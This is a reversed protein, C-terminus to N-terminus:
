DTLGPVDTPLSPFHRTHEAAWGLRVSQGVPWTQRGPHRVKLTQGHLRVTLLSDAGHYEAAEVVAQWPGQGLQVHEPRIGCCGPEGPLEILNMPPQGIFRAVVPSAPQEYLEAPTGVQAIRGQHLLVIRDAMSMAEVQDHTVYVLTLGLTQQLRRLEVRMEARLQADLNSLPEDMLCLPHQSVVARALAVRQRQGGSLQGPKRSLLASLGLMQVAQDLRRAQEARPVRRAQLGFLINQAVSLHPFLAYSQFVLSLQRQAPELETVDRGGIWIHGASPRDLGAILRLLTTKGCGSAGLLAVFEGRAVALDIGRLVAQGDFRQEIGDLRLDSM